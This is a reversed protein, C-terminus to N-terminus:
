RLNGEKNEKGTVINSIENEKPQLAAKSRSFPKFMSCTSSIRAM